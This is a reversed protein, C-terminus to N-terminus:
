NLEWERVAVQQLQERLRRELDEATSLQARLESTHGEASVLQHELTNRDADVLVLPNDRVFAAVAKEIAGVVKKRHSPAMLKSGDKGVPVHRSSTKNAENEETWGSSAFLDISMYWTTDGFYVRGNRDRYGPEADGDRHAWVKAHTSDTFVVRVTGYEFPVMAVPGSWYTMDWSRKIETM